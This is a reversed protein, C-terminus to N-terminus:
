KMRKKCIAILGFCESPKGTKLNLDYYRSALRLIKKSIKLRNRFPYAIIAFNRIISYIQYKFGTKSYGIIKTIHFNESLTSKLSKPTFHQYHKKDLKKAKSPTTVILVGEKKLHDALKKMTEPIDEPKLHELTEILTIYDFEQKVKLKKIDQVFFKANPNFIEAFKIARESYDVGFLNIKSDKLEYCFRGDGCGADLLKMNKKIKIENKIIDLYSLYEKHFIMKYDEYYLNLYHYPFVYQDEQKKQNRSIEKKKM